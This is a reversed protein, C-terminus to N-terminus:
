GKVVRPKVLEKIKSRDVYVKRDGLKKYRKLKKTALLRYLTRQSLKFEEAAETVPILDLV